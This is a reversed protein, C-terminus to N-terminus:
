RRDSVVIPIDDETEIVRGVLGSPMIISPLNNGPKVRVSVEEDGSEPIESYFRSAIFLAEKSTSAAVILARREEGYELSVEYLRLGGERFTSDIVATYRVM